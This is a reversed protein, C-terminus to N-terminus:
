REKSPPIVSKINSNDETRKEDWKVHSIERSFPPIERKADPFAKDIFEALIRRQKLTPHPDTPKHKKEDQEEFIKM